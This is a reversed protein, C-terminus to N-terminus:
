MATNIGLICTDPHIWTHEIICKCTVKIIHMPLNIQVSWGKGYVQHTHTHTYTLSHTLSLSLPPSPSCSATFAPLAMLFKVPSNQTLLSLAESEAWSSQNQTHTHTHLHSIDGCTHVALTIDRSFTVHFLAINSTSSHPTHTLISCIQWFKGTKGEWCVM